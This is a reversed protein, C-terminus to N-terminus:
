ASPNSPPTKKLAELAELDALDRTRGAARKNVILDDLSPVRVQIGDIDVEVSRRFADDFSLGSLGTIIDVRRPAVGIQFVTDDRRLDAETVNDSPAGFRRVARLVAAANDPSPNIWLDIDVTARPYGHAGMAYAGVLLFEVREDGFARLMDKYDENLM